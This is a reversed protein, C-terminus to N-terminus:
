PAGDIVLAFDVVHQAAGVRCAVLAAASAFLQQPLLAERRLQQDGVLEAGVARGQPMKAQGARMLLPDPLVVAGFVGMLGHASPLALHLPELRGRRRLAKEVDM